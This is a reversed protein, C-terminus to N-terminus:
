KNITLITSINGEVRRFKPNVTQYARSCPDSLATKQRDTM